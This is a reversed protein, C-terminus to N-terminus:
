TRGPCLRRARTWGSAVEWYREIAWFAPQDLGVQRFEEVLQFYGDEDLKTWRTKRWPARLASRHASDSSLRRLLIADIPPHLLRGFPTEHAGALVVSAKLYVALLKAARGYTSNAIGRAALTELIRGCWQRHRADVEAATDPLRGM